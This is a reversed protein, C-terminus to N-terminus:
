LNKNLNKLANAFSEDIIGILSHINNKIASYDVINNTISSQGTLQSELNDINQEITSISTANLDFSDFIKKLPGIKKNLKKMERTIENLPIETLIEIQSSFNSFCEWTTDLKSELYNYLNQNRSQRRQLSVAIYLGVFATIISLITETVNVKNDIDLFKIQCLIYSVLCGSLFVICIFFFNFKGKKM